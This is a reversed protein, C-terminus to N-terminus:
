DPEKSKAIFARSSQLRLLRYISGTQSLEDRNWGCATVSGIQYALPGGM